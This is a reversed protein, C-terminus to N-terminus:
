RFEKNKVISEYPLTICVVAKSEENFIEVKGKLQDACKKILFLGFGSGEKKISTYEEDMFNKIIKDDFGGANDKYFIQNDKVTLEIVKDLTTDITSFAELSNKILNLYICKILNVDTVLNFNDVKFSINKNKNVFIKFLDEVLKVSNISDYEKKLSFIQNISDVYDRIDKLSSSAESIINKKEVVEEKKLLLNLYNIPPLLLGKLDHVVTATQNGLNYLKTNVFELNARNKAKLNNAILGIVTTVVITYISAFKFSNALVKSETTEGLNFPFFILALVMAVSYLSILRKFLKNEIEGFYLFFFVALIFSFFSFPIFYQCIVAYSLCWIVITNKALNLYKFSFFLCLLVVIISVIQISLYTNYLEPKIIPKDSFSAMVCNLISIGVLWKMFKREIKPNVIM